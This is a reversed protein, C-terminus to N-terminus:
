IVTAIEYLKISDHETVAIIRGDSSIRLPVADPSVNYYTTTRTSARDDSIYFPERENTHFLLLREFGPTNDDRLPREPYVPGYGLVAVVSARAALAITGRVGYVSYAMQHRLAGTDIDCIALTSKMVEAPATMNVVIQAIFQDHGIFHAGAVAFPSDGTGFGVDFSRLLKGTRSDVLDVDATAAPYILFRSLLTQSGDASLSMSYPCAGEPLAWEATEEGTDLSFLRARTSECPSAAPSSLVALQKSDGSVAFRRIAVGESPRPLAEPPEISYLVSLTVADLVKISRGIQAVLKQGDPTFQLNFTYQPNPSFNMVAAPGDVQQLKVLKQDKVEWEAIQVAAMRTGDPRQGESTFFIAALTAGDPSIDFARIMAGRYRGPLDSGGVSWLPKLITEASIERCLIM